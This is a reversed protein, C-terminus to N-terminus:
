VSLHSFKGLEDDSEKLQRSTAAGAEFILLAYHIRDRMVIRTINAACQQCVDFGSAMM